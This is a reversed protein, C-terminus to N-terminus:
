EVLKKKIKWKIEEKRKYEEIARKEEVDLNQLAYKVLLIIVQNLSTNKIDSLAKIDALVDAPLKLNEM